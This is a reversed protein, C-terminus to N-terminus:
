CVVFLYFLVNLNNKAFKESNYFKEEEEKQPFGSQFCFNSMNVAIARREQLM